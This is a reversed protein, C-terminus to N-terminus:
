AMPPSAAKQVISRIALKQRYGGDIPANVSCPQRSGALVPLSRHPRGVRIV